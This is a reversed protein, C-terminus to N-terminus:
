IASNNLSEQFTTLRHTHLTFEIPLVVELGYALMFPTKGMATKETTCIRCPVGHLENAWKGEANDLKKQLDHM